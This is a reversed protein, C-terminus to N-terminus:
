DHFGLPPCFDSLCPNHCFMVGKHQFLDRTKGGSERYMVALRTPFEPDQGRIKHKETEKETM